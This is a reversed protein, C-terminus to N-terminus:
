GNTFEQRSISVYVNSVDMYIAYFLLLFYKRVKLNQVDITVAGNSAAQAESIGQSIIM